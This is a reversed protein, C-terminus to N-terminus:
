ATGTVLGYNAQTDVTSRYTSQHWSIDLHVSKCLNWHIYTPTPPCIEPKLLPLPVLTLLCTSGESTEQDMDVQYLWNMVYSIPDYMQSYIVVMGYACWNIGTVWAIISPILKILTYRLTSQTDIPNSHITWIWFSQRLAEGGWIDWGSKEYRRTGWFFHFFRSFDQSIELFVPIYVLKKSLGFFGLFFNSIFNEKKSIIM